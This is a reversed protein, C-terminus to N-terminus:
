AEATSCLFLVPGEEDLSPFYQNTLALEAFSRYPNIRKPDSFLPWDIYNAIEYSHALRYLTERVFYRVECKEKSITLDDLVISVCDAYMMESNLKNSPVQKVRIPKRLDADNSFHAFANLGQQFLEVAVKVSIRPTNTRYLSRMEIARDALQTGFPLAEFCQRLGEDSLDWTMFHRRFDSDPDSCVANFDFSPDEGLEADIVSHWHRLWYVALNELAM